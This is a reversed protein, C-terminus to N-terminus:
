QVPWRVEITFELGVFRKAMQRLHGCGKTHEMLRILNAMTSENAVIYLELVLQELM